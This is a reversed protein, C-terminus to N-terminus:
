KCYHWASPLGEVIATFQNDPATQNAPSFPCFLLKLWYRKYFVLTKCTLSKKKPFFTLYSQLQPKGKHNLKNNFYYKFILKLSDQFIYM